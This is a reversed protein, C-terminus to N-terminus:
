KGILDAKDLICRSITGEEKNPLHAEFMKVEDQM